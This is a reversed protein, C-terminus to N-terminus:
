PKTLSGYVVINDSYHHSENSFVGGCTIIRIGAYDVNGYVAQTPFSDQPYQAMANITFAATTGDARVVDIEDGPALERLRWFVGIGQVNDVHGVIVAPGKEGPTPAGTYWGAEHYDSPPVLTGNSQLGVPVLSTDVDIKPIKLEVPTSKSMTIPQPPKVTTLSAVQQPDPAKLDLRTAGYVQPAFYIIGIVGIVLPLAETWHNGLFRRAKKVSHQKRKYRYLSIAVERVGTGLLPVVIQKQLKSRHAKSTKFTRAKITLRLNFVRWIYQRTKRGGRKATKSFMHLRPM